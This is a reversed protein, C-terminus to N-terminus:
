VTKGSRKALLFLRRDMVFESLIERDATIGCLLGGFSLYVSRRDPLKDEENFIKGLCVYEYEDILATMQPSAACGGSDDGSPGGGKVVHEAFALLLTEKEKVPYINTNIDLIIEADYAVSKGRVRAVNEFKSHDISDITVRDELLVTPDASGRSM